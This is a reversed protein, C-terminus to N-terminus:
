LIRPSAQRPETWAQLHTDPAAASPLKSVRAPHPGAFSLNPPLKRDPRVHSWVLQLQPSIAVHHCTELPKSVAHRNRRISGGFESRTSNNVSSSSRKQLRRGSNFVPCQIASRYGSGRATGLSAANCLLSSYFISCGGGRAIGMRSSRGEEQKKKKNRRRRRRSRRGEEM